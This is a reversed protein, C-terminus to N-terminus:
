LQIPFFQSKGKESAVLTYSGAAYRSIPLSIVENNTKISWVVNGNASVLSLQVMSTSTLRVVLNGNDMVPETIVGAVGYEVAPIDSTTASLTTSFNFSLAIALGLALIANRIKM